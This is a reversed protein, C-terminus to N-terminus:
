CRKKHLAPLGAGHRLSVLRDAKGRCVAGKKMLALRRCVVARRLVRTGGPIGMPRAVPGLLLVPM